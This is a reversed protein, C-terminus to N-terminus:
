EPCESPWVERGALAVCTKPVCGAGSWSGPPLTNGKMAPLAAAGKYLCTADKACACKFGGAKGRMWAEVQASAPGASSEQTGEVVEFGAPMAVRNGSPDPPACLRVHVYDSGGDADLGYLARAEPSTLVEAELCTADQPAGGDWEVTSRRHDPDPKAALKGAVLAAGIVLAAAGAGALVANSPRAM